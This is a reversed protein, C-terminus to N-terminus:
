VQCDPCIKSQHIPRIHFEAIACAPHIPPPRAKKHPVKGGHSFNLMTFLVTSWNYPASSPICRYSGYVIRSIQKQYFIVAFNCCQFPSPIPPKGLQQMKTYTDWFTQGHNDSFHPFKFHPFNSQFINHPLLVSRLEM